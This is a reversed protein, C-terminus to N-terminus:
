KAPAMARPDDFLDGQSATSGLRCRAGLNQQPAPQGVFLYCHENVWLRTEYDDLELGKPKAAHWSSIASPMSEDAGKASEPWAQLASPRRSSPERAVEAATARRAEESWTLQPIDADPIAIIPELLDIRAVPSEPLTIILPSRQYGNTRIHSSSTPWVTLYIPTTAPKLLKSDIVRLGTATVLLVVVIGHIVIVM